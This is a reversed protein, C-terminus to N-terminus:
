SNYTAGLVSLLPRRILLIWTLKGLVTELAWRDVSKRTWILKPLRNYLWKLTKEMPRLEGKVLDIWIGLVRLQSSAWSTKSDKVPFGALRYDEVVHDLIGNLVGEEMGFLNLDDLYISYIVIRPSPNNRAWAMGDKDLINIFKVGQLNDPLRAIANAFMRKHVKQGVLVSGTWGMPLTPNCPHVWEKDPMGVAAGRIAPLGFWQKWDEPLKLCNYFSHIDLAAAKRVWPPLELLWSPNPLKIKPLEKTLQNTPRSDTIMRTLPDELEGKPVGFLGNVCYCAEDRFEVMNREKLKLLLDAYDQEKVKFVAKVPPPGQGGHQDGGFLTPSELVSLTDADL